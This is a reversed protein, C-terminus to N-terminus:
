YAIDYQNFRDNENETFISRQQDFPRLLTCLLLLYVLVQHVAEATANTNPVVIIVHVVACCSTHTAGTRRYELLFGVM